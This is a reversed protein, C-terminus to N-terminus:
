LDLGLQAHHGSAEPAGRFACTWVSEWLLEKALLLNVCIQRATKTIDIM